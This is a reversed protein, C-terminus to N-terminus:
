EVGHIVFGAFTLIMCISIVCLSMMDTESRELLAPLHDREGSTAHHDFLCLRGPYLETGSSLRKFLYFNHHKPDQRDNHPFDMEVDGEETGAYLDHSGETIGSDSVTFVDVLIWSTKADGNGM